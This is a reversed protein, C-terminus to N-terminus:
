VPEARLLQVERQLVAPSRRAAEELDPYPDDDIDFDFPDYYAETTGAGTM